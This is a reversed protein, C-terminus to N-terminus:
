TESLNEKAPKSILRQLRHADMEEIIDSGLETNGNQPGITPYKTRLTIVREFNSTIIKRGKDHIM